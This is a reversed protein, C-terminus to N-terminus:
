IFIENRSKERLIKTNNAQRSWDFDSITLEFEELTKLIEDKDVLIQYFNTFDELTQEDNEIEYASIQLEIQNLSQVFEDNIQLYNRWIETLHKLELIARDITQKGNDIVLQIQQFNQQYNLKVTPNLDNEVVSQYRQFSLQFENELQDM